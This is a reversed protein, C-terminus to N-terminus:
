AYTTKRVSFQSVSGCATVNSDARSNTFFMRALYQNRCIMAFISATASGDSCYYQGVADPLFPNPDREQPVVKTGTTM